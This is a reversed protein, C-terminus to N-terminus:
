GVGLGETVELKRKFVSIQRGTLDSPTLCTSVLKAKNVSSFNGSRGSRSSISGTIM